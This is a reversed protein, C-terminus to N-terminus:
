NVPFATWGEIWSDRTLPNLAGQFTASEEFFESQPPTTATMQRMPISSEFAPHRVNRAAPQLASGIEFFNDSSPTKIWAQEDFGFDDDRDGREQKRVGIRGTNAILNNTFTLRDNGVLASVEDRTDLAGIGYSDIIMNHFHGGTGERLVMGRHQTAGQGSGALTVNYFTPESRPTAQHSDGNNDGEFANDGADPHQQIVAFQVRGNWGWDWDIGDDGAGTILVKKLDVTGGFMEIGDDLARHVQVNRIITNRGCGGLTLGNLENDKSVEYGAFEIRTYEVVGCSSDADSGGFQGARTGAHLGEISANPQNVPANGLLVVGGWDGRSRLGEAKHSTFVVPNGAQGRSYLQSDPLVVLAAGNTGEVRAGPQITLRTNRVFVIDDLIYTRGSEWTTVSTIDSDIREARNEFATFGVSIALATGMAPLLWLARRRWPHRKSTATTRQTHQVPQPSRALLPEGQDMAQIERALARLEDTGQRAVQELVEDRYVPDRLLNNLHVFALGQCDGNDVGRKLRWLREVILSSAESM